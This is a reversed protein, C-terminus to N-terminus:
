ECSVKPNFQTFLGAPNHRWAWVHLDYHWPMHPNHGPMPGDFRRGFLVPAYNDIVPPPDNPGGFWPQGNSLVPAFYELGVLRRKGNLQPEYLLLEPATADVLIDGMRDPNEYHIGMGGLGPVQVCVPDPLFGDELARSEKHYQATAERAASLQEQCLEPCESDDAVARVASGHTLTLAFSASLFILLLFTTAFRRTSTRYILKKM